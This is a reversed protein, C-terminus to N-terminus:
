TLGYNRGDTTCAVFLESAAVVKRAVKTSVEQYAGVVGAAVSISNTMQAISLSALACPFAVM